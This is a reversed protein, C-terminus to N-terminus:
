QRYRVVPSDRYFDDLFVEVNTQPFALYVPLNRKPDLFSAFAESGDLSVILKTCVASEYDSEMIASTASAITARALTLSSPMVFGYERVDDGTAIHALAILVEHEMM